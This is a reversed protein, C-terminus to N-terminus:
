VTLRSRVPCNPDTHSIWQFPVARAVPSYAAGKQSASTAKRLIAYCLMCFKPPHVNPLDAAVDVSFTTMLQLVHAECSYSTAHKKAKSLRKGCVRCSILLQEKHYEM